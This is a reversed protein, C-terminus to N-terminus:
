AAKEGSLGLADRLLENVRSQWGPGSARLRALVDPDLRISIAEKRAEAPPRGPGRRVFRDGEFTEASDLMERTLRPADDPDPLDASGLRKKTQM